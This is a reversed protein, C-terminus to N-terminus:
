LPILIEIKGNKFALLPTIQNLVLYRIRIIVTLKRFKLYGNKYGIGFNSCGYIKHTSCLISAIKREHTLIYIAIKCYQLDTYSLTSNQRYFM